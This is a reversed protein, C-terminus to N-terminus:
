LRVELENCGRPQIFNIEWRMYDGFEEMPDTLGLLCTGVFREGEYLTVRTCPATHAIIDNLTITM